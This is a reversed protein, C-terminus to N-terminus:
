SAVEALAILRRLSEEIVAALAIVLNFHGAIGAALLLCAPGDRKRAWSIRAPAQRHVPRYAGPVGRRCDHISRATARRQNLWARVAFTATTVMTLLYRQREGSTRAV